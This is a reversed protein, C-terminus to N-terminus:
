YCHLNPLIDNILWNVMYQYAKQTLHVGDWSIREDPNPCVTVGPAGCMKILSFDYDGGVGCCFKQLSAADFGLLETHCYVWQFANYYDGYVVVVKPNKKRLDELARKLQDNYYTSFNNLGKLCHFEDYAAPNNTTVVDKIAQVVEPIIERAEETTKGQFLAHNYDNGGTEGVMTKLKEACDIYDIMLLGNSCLGTSALLLPSLSLPDGM